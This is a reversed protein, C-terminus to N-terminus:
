ARRGHRSSRKALRQACAVSRAGVGNTWSSCLEGTVTGAGNLADGQEIMYGGGAFFAAFGALQWFPPLVRPAAASLAASSAVASASPVGAAALPARGSVFSFPAV